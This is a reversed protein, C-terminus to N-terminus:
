PTDDKSKDLSRQLSLFNDTDKAAKKLEPCVKVYAEDHGVAARKWECNKNVGNMADWLAGDLKLFGPILVLANEGAIPISLRKRIERESLGYFEVPLGTHAFKPTWVKETETLQYDAFVEKRLAECDKSLSRLCDIDAALGKKESWQELNQKSLPPQLAWRSLIYPERTTEGAPAKENTQPNPNTPESATEITTDAESTEQTFREEKKEKTEELEVIQDKIEPEKEPQQPTIKVAATADSKNDARARAAENNQTPPLTVLAVSVVSIEEFPKLPRATIVILLFLGLHLALAISWSWTNYDGVTEGLEKRM